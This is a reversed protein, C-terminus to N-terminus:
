MMIAYEYARLSALSATVCTALGSTTCTIGLVATHGLRRTISAVLKGCPRRLVTDVHTQSPSSTHVCAQTAPRVRPSGCLQTGPTCEARLGTFRTSIRSTSPSPGSHVVARKEKLSAPKVTHQALKRAACLMRHHEFIHLLKRLGDLMTLVSLLRPIPHRQPAALRCGYTRRRHRVLVFRRWPRFDDHWFHSVTRHWYLAM